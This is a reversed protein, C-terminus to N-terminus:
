SYPPARPSLPSYSFHALPLVHLSALKRIDSPHRAAIVLMILLLAAFEPLEIEKVLGDDISVLASDPNTAHLTNDVQSGDVTVEQMAVDSIPHLHLGSAEVSPTILDVHAHVFPLVLQLAILGTAMLLVWVNKKDSMM